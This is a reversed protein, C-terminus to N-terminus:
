RINRSRIFPTFRRRISVKNEEFSHNVTGPRDTHNEVYFTIEYYNSTSM